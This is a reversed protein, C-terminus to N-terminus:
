HLTETERDDCHEKQEVCVEKKLKRLRELRELEYEDCFNKLVKKPMNVAIITM